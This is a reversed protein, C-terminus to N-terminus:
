STPPGLGQRWRRAEGHSRLRVFTLHSWRPDTRAAEFRERQLGHRKWSWVVVNDEMRWSRLFGWDERNGNWLEEGTWSRRISRPVLQAMVQRRPLDLFAVVDARAWVLDRVASYNGDVVWGDGAVVETVRARYEDRPLPQWGPQHHIADLEVHPVGLQDALARALTTKGSGSSGVVSIRRPPAPPLPGSPVVGDQGPRADGPRATM